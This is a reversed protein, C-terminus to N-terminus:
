RCAHRGNPSHSPSQNQGKFFSPFEWWESLGLICQLKGLIWQMRPKGWDINLWGIVHAIVGPLWLCHRMCRKITRCGVLQSQKVTKQFHSSWSSRSQHELKCPVPTNFSYVFICLQTTTTQDIKELVSVDSVGYSMQSAPYPIGKNNIM